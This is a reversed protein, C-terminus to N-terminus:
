LYIRRHEDLEFVKDCLPALSHLGHETIRQYHQIFRLIQEDSMGICSAKKNSINVQKTQLLRERMKHEQECRWRYIADFSPARLM